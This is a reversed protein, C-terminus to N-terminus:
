CVTTMVLGTRSRRGGQCATAEYGIGGPPGIFLYLDRPAKVTVLFSVQRM